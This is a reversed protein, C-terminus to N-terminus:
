GGGRRRLLIEEFFDLARDDETQALWFMASKRTELGPATRAVEMLFSVAEDTPRQSLAFVAADRVEQEEDDDMAVDALGETAAAAAEQGVWFIASTRVDEDVRRERGLALLDRWLGQADAIYAPFVADEEGRGSGGTRAVDMLYDVAVQASVTGLDVAGSTRDAERRILDIGRVRGDRIRLEIEAPGPRCNRPDEDGHRSWWMMHDDGMRIGQDCIEIGPRTPYTLRAVGDDVASVRRALDQGVVTAPATIAALVALLVRPRM